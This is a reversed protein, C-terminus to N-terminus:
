RRGRISGTGHLFRQWQRIKPLAPGARWPTDRPLQRPIVFEVGQCGAVRLLDDTDAIAPPLAIM